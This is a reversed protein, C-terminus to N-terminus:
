GNDAGGPLARVQGHGLREVIAVSDEMWAQQSPEPSVGRHVEDHYRLMHRLVFPQRLLESMSPRQHPSRQLLSTLLSRLEPSYRESIPSYKGSHPTHCHALCVSPMAHCTTNYAAPSTYASVCVCMSICMVRMVRLRKSTTPTHM